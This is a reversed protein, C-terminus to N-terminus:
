HRFHRRGTFPFFADSALSSGAAREGAQRAAIDVSIVRNMQGAGIGVTALGRALVIANSKVRAAVMWAFWLDEWQAETPEISTVVKLDARTEVVVDADQVLAGGELFRVDLGGPSALPSRLARLNGKEAFVELAAETFSPAIVVETFVPAMARAAAEDVEVNFAVIGGFASVRDSDLARAYAAAPEDALAVGCPNHHKVIVCAPSGFSSVLARAADADLWNNFSMEKGQLVEAGGLLGQGAEPVYIAGRQHPNEGYRLGARRELIRM